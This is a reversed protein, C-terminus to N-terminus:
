SYSGSSGVISIPHGSQHLFVQIAAHGVRASFPIAGDIGSFANGKQGIEALAKGGFLDAFRHAEIYVSTVPALIDARTVRGPKCLFQFWIFIGSGLIALSM